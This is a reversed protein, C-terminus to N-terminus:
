SAAALAVAQDLTMARGEAWAAAFASGLQAQAAARWRDFEAQDWPFLRFGRAETLAEAVALLVAGRRANSARFEGREPLSTPQRQAIALAAFGILALLTGTQNGIERWLALREGFLAKAGEFDGQHLAAFGQGMLETARGWQDGVQRFLAMSEGYLSRAAAYRGEVAALRGLSNLVFASGWPDDISRFLDLSQGDVSRTDEADGSAFLAEGLGWLSFAQWWRSGNDGLIGLAEKFNAQAAAPNGRSLEISGLFHLTSVLGPRDGIERCLAVAQELRVRAASYDGLARALGGSNYLGKAGVPTPPPAPTRALAHEIWDRGERLRGGFYWFWGLAAALRLEKEEDGSAGSRVLAGRLNDIEARLQVLWAGREGSTLHPEAREALAVFFDLYRRFVVDYEGSPAGALRTLAYERITELMTFRPVEGVGGALTVLSNDILAELEDLVDTGVDHDINCIEEAAELTWGGAFVALRRLFKQGRQDLL